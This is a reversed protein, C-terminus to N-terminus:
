LSPLASVDTVEVMREKHSLNSPQNNGFWDSMKALNDSYLYSSIEQKSCDPMASTTKAWRTSASFVQKLIIATTVSIWQEPCFNCSKPIETWDRPSFQRDEEGQELISKCAAGAPVKAKKQASHSVSSHTTNIWVNGRKIQSQRKCLIKEGKRQCNEGGQLQAEICHSLEWPLLKPLVPFQLLLSVWGGHSPAGDSATLQM